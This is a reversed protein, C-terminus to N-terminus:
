SYYYSLRYNAIAKFIGRLCLVTTKKRKKKKLVTTKMCLLYIKLFFNSLIIYAYPIFILSVFPYPSLFSDKNGKTKRSDLKKEGSTDHNGTYTETLYATCVYPYM